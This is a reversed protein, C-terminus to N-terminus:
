LNEQNILLFHYFFSKQDDLITFNGKVGDM